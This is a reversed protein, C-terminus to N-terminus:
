GASMERRMAGANQDHSRLRCHRSISLQVRQLSRMTLCIPSLSLRPSALSSSASSTCVRDTSKAQRRSLQRSSPLHLREDRRATDANFPNPQVVDPYMGRDRVQWSGRAHRDDSSDRALMSDGQDGGRVLALQLKLSYCHDQESASLGRRRRLCVTTSTSDDLSSLSHISM